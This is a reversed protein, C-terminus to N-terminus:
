AGVDPMCPLPTTDRGTEHIRTGLEINEFRLHLADDEKWFSWCKPETDPREYVFCIHGAENPYWKGEQCEDGVFSWVVRRNPLYQEIGYPGSFDSYYLTKGEVYAEFDAVTM